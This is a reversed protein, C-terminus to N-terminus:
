PYQWKQYAYFKLGTVERTGDKSFVKFDTIRVNKLFEPVNKEPRETAVRWHLKGNEYLFHRHMYEENKYAFTIGDDLYLNGSARGEEDLAIVLSINCVCTEKVNRGIKRYIPVIRGGRVYVPIDDITVNVPGTKELPKGTVFDYWLGPPKEVNVTTVGEDVVPVVYLAGGVLACYENRHFTPVEPFEYWLPAVPPENSWAAYIGATYWMALLMYRDRICKRM